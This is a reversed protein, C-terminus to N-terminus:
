TCGRCYVWAGDVWWSFSLSGGYCDPLNHAEIHKLLEEKYSCCGGFPLAHSKVVPATPHQLTVFILVCITYYIKADDGGTYTCWM